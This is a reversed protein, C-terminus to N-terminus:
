VNEQQIETGGVFNLFKVFSKVQFQLFIQQAKQSIDQLNSDAFLLVTPGAGSLCSGLLGPTDLRLIEELGPIM